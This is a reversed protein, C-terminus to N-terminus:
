IIGYHKCIAYAIGVCIATVICSKVTKLLKHVVIAVVVVIVLGILTDANMISSMVDAIDM